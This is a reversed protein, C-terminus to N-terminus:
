CAGAGSSPASVARANLWSSLWHHTGPMGPMATSSSLRIALRPPSAMRLRMGTRLYRRHQAKQGAPERGGHDDQQDQRQHDKHQLCTEGPSGARAYTPALADVSITAASRWRSPRLSGNKVWYKRKRPPSNVPSRPRESRVRCGTVM